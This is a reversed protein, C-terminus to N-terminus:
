STIYSSSYFTYRRVATAYPFIGRNHGTCRCQPPQQQQREWMRRTKWEVRFLCALRRSAARASSGSGCVYIGVQESASIGVVVIKSAVMQTVPTAGTTSVVVIVFVVPTGLVTSPVVRVVLVSCPAPAVVTPPHTLFVTKARRTVDSM